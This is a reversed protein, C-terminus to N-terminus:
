QEELSIEGIVPSAEAKPQGAPVISVAPKASLKNQKALNKVLPTVDFSFFRPTANASTDGSHAGHSVANFFHLKGVFYSSRRDAPTDPPMDFYVDYLVGPQAQARLNRLVLFIHREAKLSKISSALSAAAAGAPELTARVPEAALSVAGGLVVAHRKAAAASITPCPPSPPPVTEFRDYTYGLKAISVFDKVTAVVRNGNEDAFVFPKSMWNSDDTPDKRGAKEWSAWLRDINSHHLWFIPDGAATPVDGMNNDNGVLVHVSGHVTQDLDMCFGPIAPPRPKYTCQKLSTLALPSDSQYKDIAEGGNVNAYGNAVNRVNRINIFLSGFTPDGSKRFEPPLIGHRAGPVSYNWYPLTFGPKGSVQRIIREFFYVYMRHWPLFYNEDMGDGHAQCTEWMEKALAKQPSSGPGYINKIVNDKQDGNPDGKIWHTYWQFVWSKPDRQSTSMMTKVASAYTKLMNQGMPTYANYRTVVPQAAAYKEFWVSFPIASMGAIFSRRSLDSM